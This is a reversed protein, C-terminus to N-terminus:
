SRCQSPRVLATRTEPSKGRAEAELKWLDAMREVTTTAVRSDGRTTPGTSPGAAVAFDIPRFRRMRLVKVGSPMM